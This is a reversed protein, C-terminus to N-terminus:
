EPNAAKILSDAHCPSGLPCFCALNLGKLQHVPLHPLHDKEFWYVADEAMMPKGMEPDPDGVKFPNGWRGPRCVSVTNHPMRWGKTRKRQIRQPRAMERSVEFDDVDPNVAKCFAELAVGKKNRREGVDMRKLVEILAARNAIMVAMTEIDQEDSM